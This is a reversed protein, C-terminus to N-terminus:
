RGRPSMVFGHPLRVHRRFGLLHFVQLALWRARRTDVVYSGAESPHRSVGPLWALTGRVPLRRLLASLWLWFRRVPRVVFFGDNGQGQYLPMLILGDFPATVDGGLSSALREGARVPRFGAYGPLMRFQDLSTIAHRHRVEVVPPLSRSEDALLRRSRAVEPWGRALVGAAELVIWVAAEARDVSRPDDLQGSEFGFSTIGANVFHETLTGQLEEELGLVCPAPIRFALARNSLTDDLTVFANGPGSFGHVDFVIFPGSAEQQARTLERDLAALEEEEDELPGLANRVHAIREPLWIRNLDEGLFRRRRALGKINGALGIFRGTVGAGSQGALRAFIRVLAVAGAPENGHLGGVVVLTPGPAGQLRGLVRPVDIGLAAGSAAASSTSVPPQQSSIPM